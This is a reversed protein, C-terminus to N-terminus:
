NDIESKKTILEQVSNLNQVTLKLLMIDESTVKGNTELSDLLRIFRSKAISFNSRTEPITSLAIILKETLSANPLKLANYLTQIIIEDECLENAIKDRQDAIETSNHTTKIKKM